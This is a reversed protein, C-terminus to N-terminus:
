LVSFLFLVLLSVLLSLSLSVSFLVFLLNGWKGFREVTINAIEECDLSFSTLYIPCTLIVNITMLVIAIIKPVGESISDYIPSAVQDGYIYYGPIAVLFYIIACTTLASICVKPWSKPKKMSAEVHPYVINGGFSFAITALAVPFQDWVVAEHHITAIYEETFNAQDICAVVIVIIVIVFTIIVGFTAMFAVEKMNKVLIFPIAFIAVSIIRWKIADLEASTGMCLKHLNDGALVTYLIPGGLTVWANFFFSIWGGIAGFASSAVDKYNLLRKNGVVYLCRILILATYTAMFWALFLIFLGFWGGQKLAFPLGLMGTGVVTCVINFYALFSSGAKSRDVDLFEFKDLSADSYADHTVPSGYTNSEKKEMDMM